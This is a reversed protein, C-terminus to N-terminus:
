GAGIKAMKKNRNEIFANCKNLMNDVVVHVAKREAEDVIGTSNLKLEVNGGRSVDEELFFSDKKEVLDGIRIQINVSKM